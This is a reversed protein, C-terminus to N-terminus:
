VELYQGQLSCKVSSCSLVVFTEQNPWFTNGIGNCKKKRLQHSVSNHVKKKGGKIRLHYMLQRQKLVPYLPSISILVFKNEKNIKVKIKPTSLNPTSSLLINSM